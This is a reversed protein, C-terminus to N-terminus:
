GWGAAERLWGVDGVEGGRRLVGCARHPPEAIRACRPGPWEPGVAAGGGRM